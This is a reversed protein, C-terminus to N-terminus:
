REGLTRLHLSAEKTFNLVVWHGSDVVTDAPYLVTSRPPGDNETSVSMESGKALYARQYKLWRFTAIRVQNQQCLGEM